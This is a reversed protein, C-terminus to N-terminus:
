GADREKTKECASFRAREGWKRWARGTSQAADEGGMRHDGVDEEAVSHALSTSFEGGAAEPSRGLETEERLEEEGVEEKLLKM